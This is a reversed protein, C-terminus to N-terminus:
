NFFGSPGFIFALGQTETASLGMREETREDTM